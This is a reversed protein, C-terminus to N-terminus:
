SFTYFDFEADIIANEVDDEDFDDQCGLVNATYGMAEIVSYPNEIQERDEQCANTYTLQAKIVSDPADTSILEFEGTMGAYIKITRFGSTHKVNIIIRKELEYASYNGNPSNRIIWVLMENWFKIYDKKAITGISHKDYFEPYDAEEVSTDSNCIEIFDWGDCTRFYNGNELQGYYIYVGGGTYIATAHKIKMQLGESEVEYIFDESSIENNQLLYAIERRTLDKALGKIDVHKEDFDEIDVEFEWIAKVKM